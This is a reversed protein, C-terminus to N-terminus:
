NNIALQAELEEVTVPIKKEGGVVRCGTATVILDDEIRIGGFDRYDELRDYDVIGKYLGEARCKDILAPIFYIGPEDSLVTGERMRWAKRYICTASQAAREAILSFDFSREGIAECDHVDMGIGHGLGHPMFMTMAGSAVADAASGKLLGVGILGEALVRYSELHIDEHYMMGPRVIEAIRDHAALVINYIDRQKDTFRGNVPYTRTHDSCYYASSEGGADVLLLRGDELAAASCHNHLTEGHQTVISPFSVGTGMTKAVGELAGAIECEVAGPRCLRMATLHMEYGIHFAREIEEIEEASKCERMEAVAMMLEVSKCDHLRSPMMGLLECLQLTTRGRYPPLFHVKRGLRVAMAIREALAAAAYSRSVGVSAALDRVSPQPGTWIIDDVTLDDAYLEDEGSDADLVGTMSAHNLGFYYLFTSDQRFAYTNNPYNFPADANGPLLILGSGIRRRLEARRAAYTEAAFM